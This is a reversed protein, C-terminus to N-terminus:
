KVQYGHKAAFQEALKQYDVGHDEKNYIRIRNFGDYVKAETKEAVVTKKATSARKTTPKTEM